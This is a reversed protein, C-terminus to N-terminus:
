KLPVSGLPDKDEQMCVTGLLAGVSPPDAFGIACVDELM